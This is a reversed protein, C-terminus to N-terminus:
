AVHAIEVDLCWRDYLEKKEQLVLCQLFNVGDQYFCVGDNAV